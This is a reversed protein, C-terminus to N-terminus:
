ALVKLNQQSYLTPNYNMAAQPYQPSYSNSPNSFFGGWGGTTPGTYPRSNSNQNTNQNTNQNGFLSYGAAAAEAANGVQNGYDPVFSPVNSLGVMASGTGTLMNAQNGSYGQQAMAEATAANNTLSNIYNM